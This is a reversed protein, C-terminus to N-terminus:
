LGICFWVPLTRLAFGCSGRGRRRTAAENLMPTSAVTLPKHKRPQKGKSSSAPDGPLGSIHIEPEPKTQNELRVAINSQPMKLERATPAVSAGVPKFLTTDLGCHPCPITQGVGDEPFEIHGDCSNCSCIVYGPAAGVAKSALTEVLRVVTKKFALGSDGRSTQFVERLGSSNSFEIVGYLVIPIQRNNSFRRDPGGSKNVYQWTSGVTKADSPVWESEIFRSEECRIELKEYAVAGVGDSSYVLLRDPFFYLTQRGAPLKPVIINTKFYPPSGKSLQVSKRQVVGYAGGSTKWEYLGSVQCRAGVHWTRACSQLADFANHLAQYAEELHPEMQYFLVVTKKWHDRLIAAYIAGACVPIASVFTWTPAEAAVMIIFVIVAFAAALPWLLMRQAKSNIEELLEASSSDAMQSVSGNEIEQLRGSSAPIHPLEQSSPTTRTPRGSPLSTRFYVGGLGMHVYNGRPGTGVRFGKIGASVGVGSTSLNFRLPGITLSKRLYFGM